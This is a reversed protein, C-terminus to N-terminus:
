ELLTAITSMRDAPTPHFWLGPKKPALRSYGSQDLRIHITQMVFCHAGVKRPMSGSKQLALVLPTNNGKSALRARAARIGREIFRQRMFHGPLQTSEALRQQLILEPYVFILEHFLIPCSIKILSSSSIFDPLCVEPSLGV